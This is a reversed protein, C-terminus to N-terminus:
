ATDRDARQLKLGGAPVGTFVIFLFSDFPKRLSAPMINLPTFGLDDLSAPQRGFITVYRFADTKVPTKKTILPLFTFYIYILKRGASHKKPKHLFHNFFSLRETPFGM